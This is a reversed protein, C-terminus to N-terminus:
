RPISAIEEWFGRIGEGASSEMMVEVFRDVHKTKRHKEFAEQDQYAEYFLFWTPDEKHRFIKFELVGDEKSVEDLFPVMGEELLSTKDKRARGFAYFIEM